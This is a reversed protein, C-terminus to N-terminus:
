NEGKEKLAEWQMQTCPTATYADQFLQYVKEYNGANYAKQIEAWAARVTAQPIYAIALSQGNVIRIDKANMFYDILKGHRDIIMDGRMIIRANTPDKMESETISFRSNPYGDGPDFVFNVSQIVVERPTLVEQPDGNITPLNSENVKMNTANRVNIYLSAGTDFERPKDKGDCSALAIASIAVLLLTIIKKM